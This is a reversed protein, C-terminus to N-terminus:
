SKLLLLHKNQDAVKLLWENNFIVWILYENEKFHFVYLGGGTRIKLVDKEFSIRYQFPYIPRIIWKQGIDTYRKAPYAICMSNMRYLVQDRM